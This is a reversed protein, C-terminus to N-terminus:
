NEYCMQLQYALNLPLNLPFRCGSIGHSSFLLSNQVPVFQLVFATLLMILLMLVILNIDTGASVVNIVTMNKPLMVFGIVISVFISCLNM